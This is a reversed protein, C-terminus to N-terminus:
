EQFHPMVEDRFLELSRVSEEHSLEGYAFRAVFYNAGSQDLQEEIKARVTAPTGAILSAESARLVEELSMATVNYKRWLYVLSEYFGKSAFRGREEAQRDTEGVFLNRAIGTKPMKMGKGGHAANWSDKFASIVARAEPAGLLNVM